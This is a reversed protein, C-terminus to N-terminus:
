PADSTGSPPGSPLGDDPPPAWRSMDDPPISPAPTPEPPRFPGAHNHMLLLMVGAFVLTLVILTLGVPNNPNYEYRNTGLESRKFVPEDDDFPM